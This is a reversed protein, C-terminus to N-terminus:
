RKSRAASRTEALAFGLAGVAARAAGLAGELAEETAVRMRDNQRQEGADADWPGGTLYCLIEAAAVQAEGAPDSRDVRQVLRFVQRALTALDAPIAEERSDSLSSTHKEAESL